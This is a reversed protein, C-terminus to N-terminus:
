GRESPRGGEQPRGCDIVDDHILEVAHGLVPAVIDFCERVARESGPMNIVLTNGRVGAIGRSLMARDTKELSRLRITEAIGPVVRDIVALTSEPTVDSSALGTGGLTFAVDAGVEDCVMVLESKIASQEDTVVSYHVIRGLTDEVLTCLAPGSTDETQGAATRTSITIVAVTMHQEM